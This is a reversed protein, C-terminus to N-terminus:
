QEKLASQCKEEVHEKSGDTVNDGLKAEEIEVQQEHKKLDQHHHILKVINPEISQINKIISQHPL